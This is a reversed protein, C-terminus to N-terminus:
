FKLIFETGKGIESKVSIQGNHLRMIQKALSLGIGSGETRTSYFPIFINEMNDPDIGCGNDRVSIQVVANTDKVGEIHLKKNSTDKLAHIANKILNIMVQQILNSDAYLVVGEKVNLIVEIGNKELEPRFLNVVKELFTKLHFEETEPVPLHTLSHYHQVFDMLGQGRSSIIELGETIDRSIGQDRTGASTKEEKIRIKNLLHESLSTVPSITSMIEHTLVRIIKQWSDLEKKDLESNIDQFTILYVSQNELKFLAKRVTLYLLENNVIVSILTHRQVALNLLTKKFEPNFRNLLSIDPIHNLGFIRKAAPNILNVKGNEDYAIIGVGIHEILYNFYNREKEKEIREKQILENVRELHDILQAYSRGVGKKDAHMSSGKELLSSFFRALQRNTRNLYRVLEATELILLFVFVLTTHIYATSFFVKSLVISTALLILVRIIVQIYLKKFVM